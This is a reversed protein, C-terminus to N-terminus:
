FIPRMAQKMIVGELPALAHHHRWPGEHPGATQRDEGVPM